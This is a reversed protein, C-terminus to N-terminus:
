GPPRREDPRWARNGRVRVGPWGCGNGGACRPAVGSEPFQGNRVAAVTGPPALRAAIQGLPAGGRVLADLEGRVVKVLCETFEDALHGLDFTGSGCPRRGLLGAPSLHAQGIRPIKHGNSWPGGTGDGVTGVPRSALGDGAGRCVGGVRRRDQFSASGSQGGPPAQPRHLKRQPSPRSPETWPTTGLDGDVEM